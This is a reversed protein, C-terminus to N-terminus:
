FIYNQAQSGMRPDTSPDNQLPLHQRHRRHQRHRHLTGHFTVHTHIVHKQATDELPVIRDAMDTSRSSVTKPPWSLLGKAQPCLCCGDKRVDLPQRDMERSESRSVVPFRISFVM